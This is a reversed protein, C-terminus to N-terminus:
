SQVGVRRGEEALEVASDDGLAETDISIADVQPVDGVGYSERTVGHLGIRYGDRRVIQFLEELAESDSGHACFVSADLLFCVRGVPFQQYPGSRLFEETVRIHASRSGVLEDM